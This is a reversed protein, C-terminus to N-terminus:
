QLPRYNQFGIRDSRLIRGRDLDRQDNTDKARGEMNNWNERARRKDCVQRKPFIGFVRCQEMSAMGELKRMEEMQTEDMPALHRGYKVLARVVTKYMRQKRGIHAWRLLGTNKINRM